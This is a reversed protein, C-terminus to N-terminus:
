PPAIAEVAIAHGGDHMFREAERAAHECGAITDRLKRKLALSPSGGEATMVVVENLYRCSRMVSQEAEAFGESSEEGSLETRMMLEDVVRNEYRFVREVYDEFEGRSRTVREGAPTTTTVTACATLLLPPILFLLRRSVANMWLQSENTM